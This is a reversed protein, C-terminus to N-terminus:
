ETPVEAKALIGEFVLRFIDEEYSPCREQLPCVWVAFLRMVLSVSSKRPKAAALRPLFALIGATLSKALWLPCHRRMLECRLQSEGVSPLIVGDMTNAWDTLSPCLWNSKKGRSATETELDDALSDLDTIFDTRIGVDASPLLRARLASRRDPPQPNDNEPHPPNCYPCTLSAKSGPRHGQKPAIPCTM